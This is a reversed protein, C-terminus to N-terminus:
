ILWGQTRKLAKNKQGEWMKQCDGPIRYMCKFHILMNVAIILAVCTFVEKDPQRLLHALSRIASVHGESRM